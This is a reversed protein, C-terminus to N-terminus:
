GNAKKYIITAMASVACINVIWLPIMEWHFGYFLLVPLWYLFISWFSPMCKICGLIPLRLWKSRIYVDEEIYFVFGELSEGVRLQFSNQIKGIMQRFVQEKEKDDYSIWHKFIHDPKFALPAFRQDIDMLLDILEDDQYIIQKTKTRELWKRIPYLIMESDRETGDPLIETKGDSALKIGVIVVAQFFFVVLLALLILVTIMVSGFEKFNHLEEM